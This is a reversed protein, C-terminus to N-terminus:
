CAGLKRQSADRDDGLAHIIIMQKYFRKSIVTRVGICATLLLFYHKKKISNIFKGNTIEKVKRHNFQESDKSKMSSATIALIM